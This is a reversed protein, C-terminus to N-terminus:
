PCANIWARNRNNRGFFRVDAKKCMLTQLCSEANTASGVVDIDKEHKLLSRVGEIILPYHDVVFVRIVPKLGQRICTQQSM